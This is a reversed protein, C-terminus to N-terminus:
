KGFVPMGKKGTNIKYTINFNFLHYIDNARSQASSFGELNDSFTFRGGVELGLNIKSNYIMSVGLGLPVVGTFGSTKTAFPEVDPKLNNLANMSASFSEYYKKAIDDPSVGEKEAKKLIKDDVDTVNRCYTVDYGKFKLYRYLVDWTIYCRAHGLHASDYVTPGCVYMKVKNGDLPIFEEAKQSYSNYIKM